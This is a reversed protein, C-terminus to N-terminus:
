CRTPRLPRDPPGCRSRIAVRRGELSCALIEMAPDLIGVYSGDDITLDADGLATIENTGAGALHGAPGTRHDVM